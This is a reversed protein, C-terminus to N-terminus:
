PTPDLNKQFEETNVKVNRFGGCRVGSRLGRTM